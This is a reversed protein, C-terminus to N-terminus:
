ENTATEQGPMGARAQKEQCGQREQWESAQEQRFEDLTAEIHEYSLPPVNRTQFLGLLNIIRQENRLTTTRKALTTAIPEHPLPHSPSTDLLMLRYRQHEKLNLRTLPKLVGNEYITEIILPM